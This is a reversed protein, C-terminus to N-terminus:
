RELEGRGATEWTQLGTEVAPERRVPNVVPRVRDDIARAVPEAEVEAARARVDVPEGEIQATRRELTADPRREGGNRGTFGGRISGNGPPDSRYAARARDPQGVARIGDRDDDGAVTHDSRVPRQGAVAAPEIAFPPQEVVLAAPASLESKPRLREPAGSTCRITCTRAMCPSTMLQSHQTFSVLVRSRRVRRHLAEVFSM